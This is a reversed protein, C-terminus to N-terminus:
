PRLLLFFPFFLLKRSGAPHSIFLHLIGPFWATDSLNILTAKIHIGKARSKVEM